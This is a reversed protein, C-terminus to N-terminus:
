ARVTVLTKLQECEVAPADMYSDSLIQDEQILTENHTSNFITLTLDYYYQRFLM